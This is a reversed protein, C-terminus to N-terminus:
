EGPRNSAEDRDADEVEYSYIKIFFNTLYRFM